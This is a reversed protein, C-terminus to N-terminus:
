FDMDEDSRLLELLEGLKKVAARGKSGPISQQIMRQFGDDNRLEDLERRFDETLTVLVIRRNSDPRVRNLFDRRVLNDVLRSVTSKPIGQNESLQTITMEQQFLDFVIGMETLSLAYKKAFYDLSGRIMRFVMALGQIDAGGHEM